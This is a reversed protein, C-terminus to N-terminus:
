PLAKPPKPVLHKSWHKVIQSIDKQISFNHWINEFENLKALAM